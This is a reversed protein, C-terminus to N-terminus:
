KSVVEFPLLAVLTQDVFCKLVYNGPKLEWHAIINCFAHTPVGNHSTTGPDFYPNTTFIFGRQESNSDLIQCVITLNLTDIPQSYIGVYEDNHFVSVDKETKTDAYSWYTPINRPIEDPPASTYEIKLLGLSYFSSEFLELDPQSKCNM